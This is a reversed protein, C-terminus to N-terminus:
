RDPGRHAGHPLRVAGGHVDYQGPALQTPATAARGRRHRAVRKQDTEVHRVTVTAGPLAAKSEDTVFGAISGTTGQAVRACARRSRDRPM